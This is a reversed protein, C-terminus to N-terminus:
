AFSKMWFFDHTLGGSMCVSANCALMGLCLGSITAAVKRGVSAEESCEDSSADRRDILSRMCRFTLSAICPTVIVSGDLANLAEERLTRLTGVIDILSRDCAIALEKLKDDNCGAPEVANSVNAV